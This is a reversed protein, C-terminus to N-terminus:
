RQAQHRMGTVGIGASASRPSPAAVSAFATEPISELTRRDPYALTLVSATGCVVPVWWTWPGLHYYAFVSTAVAIGSASWFRRASGTSAVVLALIFPPALYYPTMVAEFACRAGLVFAAIWLFRLAPQPHRWVFLGAALALLLYLVRGPGGSVEVSTLPHLSTTHLAFQGRSGTLVLGSQGAHVTIRDVFPALARWPTPHNPLPPTPEKVVARWTDAANGAFAVGLLFVPLVCIRATARIRQGAPTRAIVMPLLLAVLPQITVAVGFLWGSRSWKGDVLALLAYIAVALALTDEAHGWAVGVPWAVLAVVTCVAIRRRPALQLRRAVAHTAFIVTSSLLIEAPQLLLAATPYTLVFQNTSETLGLWGSVIALPALLVPMGPPSVVGTGPTYVGGLYGWGVYHAARWIGWADGGVAWLSHHNVLPNWIFMFAMGTVLSLLTLVIPVRHTGVANRAAAALGRGRGVGTPADAAATATSEELEEDACQITPADM